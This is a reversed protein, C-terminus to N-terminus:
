KEDELLEKNEYINGIITSDGFYKNKVEKIDIRKNIKTITDFKSQENNWIVLSIMKMWHTGRGVGKGHHMILIDGEYIEKGNRDKLGTFQMVESSDDDDDYIYMIPINNETNSKVQTGEFHKHKKNWSRFKIERMKIKLLM